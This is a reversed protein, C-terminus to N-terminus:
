EAVELEELEEKTLFKEYDGNWHRDEFYEWYDIDFSMGPDLTLIDDLIDVIEMEEDANIDLPNPGDYDIELSFSVLVKHDKELQIRVNCSM